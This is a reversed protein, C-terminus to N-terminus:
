PTKVRSQGIFAMLPEMMDTGVVRFPTEQVRRSAFDAM